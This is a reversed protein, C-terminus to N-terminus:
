KPDNIGEVFKIADDVSRVVGYKMGYKSVLANFDRQNPSLYGKPKKVELFAAFGNKYIVIDSHGSTSNTNTIRYASLRTGHPTFGSSSNVRVVLWGLAELAKCIKRQLEQESNAKKIAKAAKAAQADSAPEPIPTLPSLKLTM